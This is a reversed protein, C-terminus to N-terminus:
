AVMWANGRFRVTVAVMRISIMALLGLWVGTLGWGFAYSLWVLPLYGLLVSAISWTRLFAADGAGLLVGDFAFVVGGLVVLAVLIWWPWRMQELVGPDSTFIRPIFGAGLTLGIALLVASAISFRLVTVGVARASEFAKAGLAKGVLAQAAIAVSDLVLTLFNWLQLMVQHGALQNAGMHGAVAAASIFAIQFSLSRAVLDRGMVLQKVIVDWRPGVPRDDGEARWHVILAGIFCLAVITEGLVNAYASGVLGWRGVAFPVTVAMPLVGALTFYLPLRTNSIGRLWGNGAMVILAPIVSLCTVRMWGTAHAAVTPDSSLWSMISPASVFVTTALIAGVVIAVWTAQLGEYIAARTEGAGFHRAARATTGYSLFTLQTTITGLVTAGAALAALDTAGLRGVVATDFLLYLPTAALVVLAPWALGIIAGPSADIQPDGASRQTEVM